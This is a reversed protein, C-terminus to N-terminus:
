MCARKGAVSSSDVLSIFRCSKNIPPTQALCKGQTHTCPFQRLPDTHGVQGSAARLSNQCVHVRQEVLEWGGVDVLCTLRYVAMHGGRESFTTTNGGRHNCIQRTPARQSQMNATYTGASVRPVHENLRHPGETRPTALVIPGSASSKSADCPPLLTPPPLPPAEPFFTPRHRCRPM